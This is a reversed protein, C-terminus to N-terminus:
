NQKMRGPSIGFKNKFATCFNNPSNYGSLYAVETVTQHGEQLLNKARNMKLHDIHRFVTTSFLQKFGSKLKFVNLGAMRSISSLSYASDFDSEILEKVFYLKEIDGPSIKDRATETGVNNQLFETQLMFLELVKSEIFLKKFYGTRNCAIMESLVNLMGPTIVSIDKMGFAMESNRIKELLRRHVPCEESAIREFYQQDFLIDMKSVPASGCKFSLESSTGAPITFLNQNFNDIAIPDTFHRNYATFSGNLSFHMEIANHTANVQLTTQTLPRISSYNLEVGDLQVSQIFGEFGRQPILNYHSEHFGKGDHVNALHGYPELSKIYM